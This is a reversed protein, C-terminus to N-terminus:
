LSDDHRAQIPASGSALYKRSLGNRPRYRSRPGSALVGKSRASRQRQRRQHNESQQEIHNQIELDIEDPILMNQGFSDNEQDPQIIVEHSANM